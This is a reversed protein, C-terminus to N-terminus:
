ELIHIINTFFNPQLIMEDYLTVGEIKMLLTKTWFKSLSVKGENYQVSFVM